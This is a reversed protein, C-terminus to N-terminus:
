EESRNPGPSPNRWREVAREEWGPEPEVEPLDRIRAAVARDAEDLDDETAMAEGMALRELCTEIQARWSPDLITVQLGARIEEATRGTGPDIVVAVISVERLTRLWLRSPVAELQVDDDLAGESPRTLAYAQPVRTM